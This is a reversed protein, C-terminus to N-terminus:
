RPKKASRKTKREQLVKRKWAAYGAKVVHEIAEAEKLNRRKFKPGIFYMKMVLNVMRFNYAVVWEGALIIQIEQPPKKRTEFAISAMNGREKSLRRELCIVIRFSFRWRLGHRNM